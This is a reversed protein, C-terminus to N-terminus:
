LERLMVHKLLFAADWAPRVAEAGAGAGPTVSATFAWPALVSPTFVAPEALVSPTVAPEALTSAAEGKTVVFPVVNM